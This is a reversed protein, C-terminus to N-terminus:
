IDDIVQSISPHGIGSVFGDIRQRIEGVYQDYRVLEDKRTQLPTTDLVPAWDPVMTVIYIKPEAPQQQGSGGGCASALVSIAFGAKAGSIRGVGFANNTTYDKIEGAEWAKNSALAPLNSSAEQMRVCMRFTFQKSLDVGDPIALDTPLDIAKLRTQAIATGCTVVTFLAAALIHDHMRM